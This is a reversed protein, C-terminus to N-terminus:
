VHKSVEITKSFVQHVANGPPPNLENRIGPLRPREAVPGPHPPVYYGAGLGRLEIRDLRQQRVGLVAADMRSGLLQVVPLYQLFDQEHQMGPDLPPEQRLLQADARIIQSAPQPVPVLGADSPLQLPHQQCFRATGVLRVEGTGRDAGLHTGPPATWTPGPGTSRARGPWLCWTIAWACPVGGATGSVPPLRLSMVWSMGSGSALGHPVSAPFVWAGMGAAPGRGRSRGCCGGGGAGSSDASTIAVVRRRVAYGALEVRAAATNM